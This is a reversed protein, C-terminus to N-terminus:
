FPEYHSRRMKRVLRESEYEFDILEELNSFLWILVKEESDGFGHTNVQEYSTYQNGGCAPCKFRNM